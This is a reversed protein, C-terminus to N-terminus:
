VDIKSFRYADLVFRLIACAALALLDLAVAVHATGILVGRLADVGCTLPDLRTFVVLPGAFDAACVARRLSAVDAHRLFNLIIPFSRM